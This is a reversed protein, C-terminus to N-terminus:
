AGIEICSQQRGMMDEHLEIVKLMGAHRVLPPYEGLELSPSSPNKMEERAQDQLISTGGIIPSLSAVRSDFRQFAAQNCLALASGFM